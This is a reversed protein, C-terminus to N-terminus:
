LSALCVCVCMGLEWRHFQTKVQYQWCGEQLCCSLLCSSNVHSPIAKCKAIFWSQYYVLLGSLCLPLSLSLSLSLSLFLSLSLSNETSFQAVSSLWLVSTPDAGLTLTLYCKDTLPTHVLKPANGQYEYTYDFEADVM